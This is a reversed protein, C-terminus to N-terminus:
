RFDAPVPGWNSDIQQFGRALAPSGPLLTFNYPEVLSAVLPDAVAGAVDEGSAQWQSFSANHSPPLPWTLNDPNLTSWYVNLSFVMANTPYIDGASFLSGGDNTVVFINLPVIAAALADYLYYACVRM